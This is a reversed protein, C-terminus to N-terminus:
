GAAKVADFPIIRNVLKGQPTNIDGVVGFAQEDGECATGDKRVLTGKPLRSEPGFQEVASNKRVTPVEVEVEVGGIMAKRKISTPQAAGGIAAAPALDAAVGRRAADAMAQARVV